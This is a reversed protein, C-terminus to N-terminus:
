HADAAEPSRVTHLHVPGCWLPLPGLVADRNRPRGRLALGAQETWRAVQSHLADLADTGCSALADTHLAARHRNEQPA